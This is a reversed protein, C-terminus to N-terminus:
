SLGHEGVVDAPEAPVRYLQEARLGNERLWRAVDGPSSAAVLVRGDGVAVWEGVHERLQDELVASPPPLHRAGTQALRLLLQKRDGSLEPWALAAQDLMTAVPGTDTVQYRPRATPM